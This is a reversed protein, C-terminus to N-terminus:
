VVHLAIRWCSAVRGDSCCTPFSTGPASIFHSEHLARLRSFSRSPRSFSRPPHSSSSAGDAAEAGRSRDIARFERDLSAISSRNRARCNKLPNAPIQGRARRVRFYGSRAGPPTFRAPRVALIRAFYCVSSLSCLLIYQGNPPRAM